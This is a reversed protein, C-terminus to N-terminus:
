AQQVFGQVLRVKCHRTVLAAQLQGLLQLPLIICSCCMRLQHLHVRLLCLL